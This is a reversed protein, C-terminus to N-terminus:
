RKGFQNHLNRQNDKKVKQADRERVPSQYTACSSFLIILFILLKKM